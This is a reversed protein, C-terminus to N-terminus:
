MWIKKMAPLPVMSRWMAMVVYLDWVTISGDASGIALERTTPSFALSLVRIGENIAEIQLTLTDQKKGNAIDWFTVQNGTAAAVYERGNVIVFKIARVNEAVDWQQIPDCCKEANWIFLQKGDGAAAFTKSDTSFAVALFRNTDGTNLKQPKNTGANMDWLFVEGSEGTPIGGATALWRGDPSFALARV